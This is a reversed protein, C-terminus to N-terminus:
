HLSVGRPPNEAADSFRFEFAGQSSISLTASWGVRRPAILRDHLSCVKRVLQHERAIQIAVERGQDGCIRVSSDCRLDAPIDLTIVTWNRVAANATEVLFAVAYDVLANNDPDGTPETKKLRAPLAKRQNSSTWPHQGYCFDLLSHLLLWGDFSVVGSAASLFDWGSGLEPAELDGLQNVTLFDAFVLLLDLIHEDLLAETSSRVELAGSCTQAGLLISGAQALLREETHLPARYEVPRFSREERAFNLSRLLFATKASPVIWRPKGGFEGSWPRLPGYVFDLDRETNTVGNFISQEKPLRIFSAIAEPPPASLDGTGRSRLFHGFTMLSDILGASREILRSAQQPYREAPLYAGIREIIHLAAERTEPGNADASDVISTTASGPV